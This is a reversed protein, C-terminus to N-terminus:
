NETESEELELFLQVEYKNVIESIQSFSKVLDEFRAEFKITQGQFGTKVLEVIHSSDVGSKLPGDEATLENALGKMDIERRLSKVSNFPAVISFKALLSNHAMTIERSVRGGRAYFYQGLIAPLLITYQHHIVVKNRLAIARPPEPLVDDSFAMPWDDEANGPDFVLKHQEAFEELPSRETTCKNFFIWANYKKLLGNLDCTVQQALEANAFWGVITYSGSNNSAYAQWLKIKM